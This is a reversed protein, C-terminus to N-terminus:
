PYSLSAIAIGYLGVATSRASALYTYTRADKRAERVMLADTMLQLVIVTMTAWDMYWVGINATWYADPGGSFNSDLLLMNQGFIAKTAIWVTILFVMMSSFLAYFLNSKKHKGRNSLLIRITNFYLFLEIGAPASWYAQVMRILRIVLGVM